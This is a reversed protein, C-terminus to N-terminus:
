EFSVRVLPVWANAVESTMGPHQVWQLGPTVSWREAIRYQYAAEVVREYDPLVGSEGDRAWADLQARQADRSVYATAVGVGFVDGDRGPVLGAWNFGADTCWEVASRNSPAGAVRMWATLGQGASRKEAWVRQELSGYWGRNGRHTAPDLGSLTFSEGNADAWNDSFDASHRWLGLKLTGPMPAAGDEGRWERSLEGIAFTGQSSSMSFHLGHSNVRPDGAPSDFSDGDYLGAQLAWGTAPKVALRAGPAPSYYIPGGNVINAGVGATWGFAGNSFLGGSETGTFKEDAALSGARLSVRGEWFDQQLWVQYLRISDYGDLNSVTLADGVFYWSASKGRIWYLDAGATAGKWAGTFKELDAEVTFVGLTNYVGGKQLGGAVNGLWLGTASATSTIGRAALQEHWEPGSAAPGALALAPALLACATGAICWEKLKM